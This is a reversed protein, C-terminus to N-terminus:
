VEENPANIPAWAIFDESDFSLFGNTWGEDWWIIQNRCEPNEPLALIEVLVDRPAEDMDYHWEGAAPHAPVKGFGKCNPCANAYDMGEGDCEPCVKFYEAV